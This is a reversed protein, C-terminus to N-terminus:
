DIRNRLKEYLSTDILVVEAPEPPLLPPQEVNVYRKRALRCLVAKTTARIKPNQNALRIM